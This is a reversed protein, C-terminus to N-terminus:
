GVLSSAFVTGPVSFGGGAGRDRENEHERECRVLQVVARGTSLPQAHRVRYGLRAVVEAFRAFLRLHARFLSVDGGSAESLKTLHVALGQGGHVPVMDEVEYGLETIVVPLHALIAGHRTYAHPSGPM